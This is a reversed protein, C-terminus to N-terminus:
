RRIWLVKQTFHPHAYRAGGGAVWRIGEAGACMVPRWRIAHTEKVPLVRGVARSVRSPAPDPTVSDEMRRSFSVNRAFAYLLPHALHSGMQVIRRVRIGRGGVRTHANHCTGDVEADKQSGTRWALQTGVKSM